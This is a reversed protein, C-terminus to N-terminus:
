LAKIVQDLVTIPDSPYDLLSPMAAPLLYHIAWFTDRDADKPATEHGPRGHAVGSRDDYMLVFDLWESCRKTIDREADEKMRKLRPLDTKIKSPDLTLFGCAPRDRGCRNGDYRGCVLYSARRALRFTGKTHGGGLLTEIAIVAALTRLSPNREVTARSLLRCALLLRQPGEPPSESGVFDALESFRNDQWNQWERSPMTSDLVEGDNRFGIGLGDGMLQGYLMRAQRIEGPLGFATTRSQSRAQQFVRLVDLADSVMTIAAQLDPAYVEAACWSRMMELANERMWDPGGIGARDDVLADLSSLELLRVPGIPWDMEVKLGEVPLLFQPM